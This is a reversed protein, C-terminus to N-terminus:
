LIEVFHCWQNPMLFPMRGMFISHHPAPITIQRSCLASSKCITYSIGNSMEQKM